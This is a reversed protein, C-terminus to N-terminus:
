KFMKNVNALVAYASIMGLGFWVYYWSFGSSQQAIYLMHLPFYFVAGFVYLGLYGTLKDSKSDKM